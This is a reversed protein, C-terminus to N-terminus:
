TNYSTLLGVHIKLAQRANLGPWVLYVCSSRVLLASFFPKHATTQRWENSTRRARRILTKSEHGNAQHTSSRACNQVHKFNHASSLAYIYVDNPRWFSAPCARSAISWRGICAICESCESSIQQTNTPQATAFAWPFTSSGWLSVQPAISSLRMLKLYGEFLPKM